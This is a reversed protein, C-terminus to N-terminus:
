TRAYRREIARGALFLAAGAALLWLETKWDDLVFGVYLGMVLQIMAVLQVARGLYYAM